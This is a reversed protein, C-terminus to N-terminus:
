EEEEEGIIEAAASDSTIKGRMFLGHVRKSKKAAKVAKALTKPDYAIEKLHGARKM